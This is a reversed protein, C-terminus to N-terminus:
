EGTPTPLPRYATTFDLPECCSYFPNFYYCKANPVCATVGSWGQGGCQRYLSARCESRNEDLYACETGWSTCTTSGTWGKGGCQQSAVYPLLTALYIYPLTVKAM